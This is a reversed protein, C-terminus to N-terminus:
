TIEGVPVGSDIVERQYCYCAGEAVVADLMM